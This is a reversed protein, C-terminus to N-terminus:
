VCRATSGASPPPKPGISPRGGPSTHACWRNLSKGGATATSTVCIPALTLVVYLGVTGDLRLEPILAADGLPGRRCGSKGSWPGRENHVNLPVSGGFRTM